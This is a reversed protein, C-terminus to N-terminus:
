DDVIEIKKGTLKLLIIVLIAIVLLVIILGLGDGGTKLDEIQLALQHLEQDSLKELRARIEEETFGLQKLRNKFVKTELLKQIKALDAERDILPLEMLESPTFSAEIRPSLSFLFMVVVLLKATRKIVKISM